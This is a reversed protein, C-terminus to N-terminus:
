DPQSWSKGLGQCHRDHVCGQGVTSWPSESRDDVRRPGPLARGWAGLRAGVIYLAARYRTPERGVGEGRRCTNGIAALTGSPSWNERPRCERLDEGVLTPPLHKPGAPLTPPGQRSRARRTALTPCAPCAHCLHSHSSAPSWREPRHHRFSVLGADSRFCHVPPETGAFTAGSTTGTTATAASPNTAALRANPPQPHAPRHPHGKRFSITSLM